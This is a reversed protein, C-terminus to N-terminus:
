AKQQQRVKGGVDVVFTRVFAEFREAGLKTLGALLKIWRGRGMQQGRFHAKRDCECQDAEDSADDIRKDAVRLSEENRAVHVVRVMVMGMAVQVEMQMTAAVFGDDMEFVMAHVVDIAVVIGGVTENVVEM